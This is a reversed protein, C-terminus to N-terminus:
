AVLRLDRDFLRALPETIEDLSLGQGTLLHRADAVLNELIDTPFGRTAAKGIRDIAEAAQVHGYDFIDDAYQQLRMIAETRM